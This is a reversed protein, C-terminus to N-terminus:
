KRTKKYLELFLDYAFQQLSKKSDEALKAMATHVDHPVRVCINRDAKRPILKHEPVSHHKSIWYEKEKEAM